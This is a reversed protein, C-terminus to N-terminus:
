CIMTITEIPCLFILWVNHRDLTLNNVASKIPSSDAKQRLKPVFIAFFYTGIRRLTSLLFGGIFFRCKQRNIYTKTPAFQEPM